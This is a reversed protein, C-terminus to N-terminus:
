KTILSTTKTTRPRAVIKGTELDVVEFRTNNEFGLYSYKAVVQPDFGEDRCMRFLENGELDYGVVGYSSEDGACWPDFALLRDGAPLVWDVRENIMRVSWDKTDILSLGAPDRIVQRDDSVTHDAGTVAVLGSKLWLAQRIPGQILKAEATPELWNRFRELLSVPQSLSHYTVRLNALSVEAVEGGAPVVLARRGTPDVALGPINETARFDEDGDGEETNVGGVIRHLPVSFTGKGGFVAAKLRGIGESPGVLAIMGAPIAQLDGLLLGDVHRTEVVQRARPYIVVVSSQGVAAFLMGNPRWSLRSVYGPMGLDVTGLSRMKRLDLFDIRPAAGGALALMTGDPSLETVYGGTGLSVPRSTPTLTTPDLRALEIEGEGDAPWRFGLLRGEDLDIETTSSQPNASPNTGAEDAGCSPLALVLSLLALCSGIRVVQNCWRSLAPEM